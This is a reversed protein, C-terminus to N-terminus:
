PEAGNDKEEIGIYRRHRVEGCLYGEVVLLQEVFTALEM